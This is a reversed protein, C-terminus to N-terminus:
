CQEVQALSVIELNTNRNLLTFYSDALSGLGAVDSLAPM